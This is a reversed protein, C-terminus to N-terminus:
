TLEGEPPRELKDMDQAIDCTKSDCAERGLREAQTALTAVPWSRDSAVEAHPSAFASRPGGAESVFRCLLCVSICKNAKPGWLGDTQWM